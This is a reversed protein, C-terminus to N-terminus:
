ELGDFVDLIDDCVFIDNRESSKSSTRAMMGHAFIHIVGVTSEWLLRALM